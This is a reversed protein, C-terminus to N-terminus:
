GVGPVNPERLPAAEDCVSSSPEMAVSEPEGATGSAEAATNYDIRLGAMDNLGEDYCLRRM